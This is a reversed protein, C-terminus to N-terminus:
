YLVYLDFKSIACRERYSRSNPRATWALYVRFGTVYDVDGSLMEVWLKASFPTEAVVEDPVQLSPTQFIRALQASAGAWLAFIVLCTSLQM